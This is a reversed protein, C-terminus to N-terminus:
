KSDSKNRASYFYICLVLAYLLLMILMLFGWKTLGVLTVTGLWLHGKRSEAGATKMTPVKMDAVAYKKGEYFTYFQSGYRHTLIKGSTRVTVPTGFIHPAIDTIFFFVVLVLPLFFYVRKM